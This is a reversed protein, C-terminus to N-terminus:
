HTDYVAMIARLERLICQRADPDLKRLEAPPSDAELRRIVERVHNCGEACIAEVHAQLEPPLVNM